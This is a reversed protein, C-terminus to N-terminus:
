LVTVLELSLLTKRIDVTRYIIYYVFSSCLKNWIYLQEKLKFPVICSRSCLSNLVKRHHILAKKQKLYLSIDKFSSGCFSFNDKIKM